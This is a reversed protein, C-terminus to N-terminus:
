TELTDRAMRRPSYRQAAYDEVLSYFRMLPGDPATTLPLDYDIFLQRTEAIIISRTRTRTGQLTATYAANVAATTDVGVSELAERADPSLREIHRALALLEAKVKSPPRGDRIRVQSIDVIELARAVFGDSPCLRLLSERVASM